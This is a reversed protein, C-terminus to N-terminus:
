RAVVARKEALQRNLEELRQEVAALDNARVTGLREREAKYFSYTRGTLKACVFTLLGFLLTLLLSVLVNGSPAFATAPLMFTLLGCILTVFVYAGGVPPLNLSAAMIFNRHEACKRMEEQIRPIALEAATKDTGIQVRHIAETVAKLTVTGGRRQVIMETRCYGCAFRDVDDYVELSGGCSQCKLAVFKETM